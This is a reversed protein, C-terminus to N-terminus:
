VKTEINQALAQAKNRDREMEKQRREMEQQLAQRYGEYSMVVVELEKRYLRMLMEQYCDLEPLKFLDWKLKHDYEHPAKTYVQLWEPIESNMYPSPPVQMGAAQMDGAIAQSTQMTLYASPPLPPPPDYKPFRPACPHRYQARKTNHDVYYVGYEASEVKEWGAPLGEKELPHSWHTTQTNHDIYYKRGRLTYDATWGTPLPLEDTSSVNGVSGIPSASGAPSRGPFSTLGSGHVPLSAVSSHQYMPNYYEDSYGQGEYNEQVTPMAGAAAAVEGNVNESVTHYDLLLSGTRGGPNYEPTVQSFSHGHTSYDSVSSQNSYSRQHFRPLSAARTDPSRGEESASGQQGHIQSLSESRRPFTPGYRVVPSMYNRLLPSDEKKVYKGTIGENLSNSLKASNKDKKRARSLMNM